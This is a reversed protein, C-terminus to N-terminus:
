ARTENAMEEAQMAIAALSAIIEHSDADYEMQRLMFCHDRAGGDDALVLHPPQVLSVRAGAADHRRHRRVQWTVLAGATRGV